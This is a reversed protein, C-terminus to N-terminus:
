LKIASCASSRCSPEYAELQKSFEILTSHAASRVRNLETLRAYVEPYFKMLYTGIYTHPENCNSKPSNLDWEPTVKIPAGRCDLNFRSVLASSQCLCHSVFLSRLQADASPTGSQQLVSELEESAKRDNTAQSLLYRGLDYIKAAMPDLTNTPNQSHAIRFNELLEGFWRQEGAPVRLRFSLTVPDGLSTPDAEAITSYRKPELVVHQHRGRTWDWWTGFANVSMDGAERLPMTETCSTKYGISFTRTGNLHSGNYYTSSIFDAVDEFNSGSALVGSLDPVGVLSPSLQGASSIACISSNTAETLKVTSGGECSQDVIAVSISRQRLNQAISVMEDARLGVTGGSIMVPLSADANHDGWVAADNLPYSLTTSQTTFSMADIYNARFDTLHGNEFSTFIKTGPVGHALLVILVVEGKAILQTQRRLIQALSPGGAIQDRPEQGLKYTEWGRAELQRAMLEASNRFGSDAFNVAFYAHKTYHPAAWATNLILISTLAFLARKSLRVRLAVDNIFTRATRAREIYRM